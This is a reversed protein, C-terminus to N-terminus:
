VREERSEVIEAAMADGSVRTRLTELDTRQGHEDIFQQLRRRLTETRAERITERGREAVDRDTDSM